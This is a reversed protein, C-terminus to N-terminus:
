SADVRRVKLRSSKVFLQLVLSEVRVSWYVDM